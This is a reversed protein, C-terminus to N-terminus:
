LDPFFKKSPDAEVLMGILGWNSPEDAECNEAFTTLGKNYAEHYLEETFNKAQLYWKKGEGHEICMDCM